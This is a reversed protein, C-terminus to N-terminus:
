AGRSRSGVHVTTTAAPLWVEEGSDDRVILGHLPDLREVRGRVLRNEHIFAADTGVLADRVQFESVIADADLRLARDFHRLLSELVEIRDVHCGLQALSVATEALDDPWSRQSVNIGVGVLASEPGLDILIGALKRDNAMIDNPWKIGVPRALLTEIAQAIGVASAIALQETRPMVERNVVFTCATGDEGTDAWHRGLRGRGASQRWTTIVTGGAVGLRAAATQTSDTEGLVTVTRFLSCESALVAELRDPWHEIAVPKM